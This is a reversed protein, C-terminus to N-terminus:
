HFRKKTDGTRLTSVFMLRFNVEGHHIIMQLLKLLSLSGNLNRMGTCITIFTALLTILCAAGYVWMGNLVTELNTRGKRIFIHM